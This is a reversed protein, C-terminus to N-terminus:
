RTHQQYAHVLSRQQGVGHEQEEEDDDHGIQGNRELLIEAEKWRGEITKSYARIWEYGATALQVADIKFTLRGDVDDLHIRPISANMKCTAPMPMDHGSHDEM